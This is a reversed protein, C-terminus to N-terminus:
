SFVVSVRHWFLGRRVEIDSALAVCMKLGFGRYLGAAADFRPKGGAGSRAEDLARQFAPLNASRFRFTLTLGPVSSLTVVAFPPLVGRAHAVLNDFLECAVLKTRAAAAGSSGPYGDVFRELRPLSAYSTRIIVAASRGSM